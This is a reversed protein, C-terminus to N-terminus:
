DNGDSLTELTRDPFLRLHILFAQEVDTSNLSEDPSSYAAPPFRGGCPWAKVTRASEGCRVAQLDRGGYTDYNAPFSHLSTSYTPILLNPRVKEIKRIKEPKRIGRNGIYNTRCLDSPVSSRGFPSNRLGRGLYRRFCGKSVTLPWALCSGALLQPKRKSFGPVTSLCLRLFSL